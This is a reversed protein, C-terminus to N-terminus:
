SGWGRTGEKGYFEVREEIELERLNGFRLGVTYKQDMSVGGWEDCVGFDRIGSGV